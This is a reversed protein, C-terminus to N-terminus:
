ETIELSKPKGTTILIDVESLNSDEQTSVEEFNEGLLSIIESRDDIAVDASFIVVTKAASAGEANGTEINTFGAEALLSKIKGAQGAINTGNLVSVKLEEKTLSASPSSDEPTASSSAVPPPSVSVGARILKSETKIFPLPLKDYYLIGGAGLVTVIVMGLLGILMKKNKFFGRNKSSFGNILDAKQTIEDSTQIKEITEPNLINDSSYISLPVVALVETGFMKLISIIGEFLRKNVAFMYIINDLNVNKTLINNRDIPIMNIFNSAGELMKVDAQPIKKEFVIEDSLVLIIKKSKIDNELIFNQILKGYKDPNIIDSDSVTDDPFELQNEDGDTYFTLSNKQIFILSPNENKLISM